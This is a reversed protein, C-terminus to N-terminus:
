LLMSLKYDVFAFVSFATGSFICRSPLMAASNERSGGRRSIQTSLHFVVDLTKTMERVLALACIVSFQFVYLVTEEHM